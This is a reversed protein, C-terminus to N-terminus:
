AAIRTRTTWRYVVPDSDGPPPTDSVREFHEYGGRHMIKIIPEGLLTHRKRATEPLDLPGGELVANVAEHDAYFNSLDKM